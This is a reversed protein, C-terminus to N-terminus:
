LAFLRVLAEAAPEPAEGLLAREPVSVIARIVAVPDVGRHSYFRRDETAILAELFYPSVHELRVSQHRFKGFSLIPTGDSAFIQTWQTPNIGDRLVKEVSPLDRTVNFVYAGAAMLGILLLAILNRLM